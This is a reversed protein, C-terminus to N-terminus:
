NELKSLLHQLIALDKQQTQKLNQIKTKLTKIEFQLHPIAIVHESKKKKNLIKTLNHVQVPQHCNLQNKSL